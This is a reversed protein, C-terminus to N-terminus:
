QGFKLLYLLYKHEDVVVYDDTIMRNEMSLQLGWQKRLWNDVPVDLPCEAHARRLRAWHLDRQQRHEALDNAISTM